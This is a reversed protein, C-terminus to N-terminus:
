PDKSNDPGPVHTKSRKTVFDGMKIDEMVTTEVLFELLGTYSTYSTYFFFHGTSPSLYVTPCNKNLRGPDATLMEAVCKSSSLEISNQMLHKLKTREDAKSFFSKLRSPLHSYRFRANLELRRALM